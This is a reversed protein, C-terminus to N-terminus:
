QIHVEKNEFVAVINNVFQAVAEIGINDYIDLDIREQIDGHERALVCRVINTENTETKKIGIYCRPPTFTSDQPISIAVQNILIDIGYSEGMPDTNVKNPLVTYKIITHIFRVFHGDYYGIFDRVAKEKIASDYGPQDFQYTNIM